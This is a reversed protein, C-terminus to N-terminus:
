NNQDESQKGGLFHGHPVMFGAANKHGGGGYNSAIEAVNFNGVSRLSYKRGSRADYYVAGFAVGPRNALRNGIESMYLASNAVPVQWGGINLTRTTMQIITEIDMDQSEVIPEGAAILPWLPARMAKDFQAITRPTLLLSAHIARTGELEFKWLDRDEIHDILPPRAKGPNLTDWTLGAGSRDVDFIFDFETFGYYKRNFEAVKDKATIHHDIITISQAVAALQRLTATDFCFDVCYIHWGRMADFRMPFPDGYQIPFPKFMHSPQKRENIVQNYITWAAAIGDNCNSHYFVFAPLKINM